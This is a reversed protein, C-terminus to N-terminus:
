NGAHKVASFSLESNFTLKLKGFGLSLKKKLYVSM